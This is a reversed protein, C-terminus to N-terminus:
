QRSMRPSAFYEEETAGDYDLRDSGHGFLDSICDEIMAEDVPTRSLFDRIEERGAGRTFLRHAQNIAQTSSIDGRDNVNETVGSDKKTPLDEQNQAQDTTSTSSTSSSDNSRDDEESPLKSAGPTACLAYAEDIFNKLERMSIKM